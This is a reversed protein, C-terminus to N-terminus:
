AARRLLGLGEFDFEVGAPLIGEVFGPTGEVIARRQLAHRKLHENFDDAFDTIFAVNPGSKKARLGRGIRQRLSVEAKGGAALCIHGVAPVDVGVDLINTGILVDIDGRELRALAAKRAPHDDEGAIYEVRLGVAAMLAQLTDGHAVQQVLVMSTLGWRAMKVCEAVIARNRWENEVIGIRYASQWGTHRYLKDPKRALPLYKFYPRALIGREILTKESVKIAIPGSCAMLRMNSEQSDKMMPTATLALRYHANKCHRLIEYYSNGSAEHAEELIVLEMMELLRITRARERMHAEVKAAIEARLAPLAPRAAAHKAELAQVQREVQVHPLKAKLLRQELAKEAKREKAARAEAWRKLEVDVTKEELRAILTQVMAVSIKKVTQREIGDSGVVTHGFQGDGLVSPAIGLHSQFGEAMQYMLIGRTTLFMTPRGIRVFAKRAIRSKGGGTAVQAIIAGHKVLREVTEDQFDYRPDDGLADVKAHLPGLPEPLPKRVTRVVHGQKRLAAAVYVVFGAPFTGARFDLFSSRGDWGGRKFALSQEYGEVEYSLIAQVALKVERSPQHLKALVANSAITVTEPM